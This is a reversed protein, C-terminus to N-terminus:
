APRRHGAYVAARRLFEPDDRFGALWSNCGLCLAGRACRRCGVTAAHGHAVALRHDHDVMAASVDLPRLCLACRGSQARVLASVEAPTLGQRKRTPMRPDRPGLPRQPRQRLPASRYPSM